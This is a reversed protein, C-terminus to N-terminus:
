SLLWKPQYKQQYWNVLKCATWGSAIGLILGALVDSPFHVYFYLRSFAIAVALSYAAMGARKHHLFLATAAAFSAFTHGSPFSFDKEPPILLTMDPFYSYPRARAVLPKLTVNGILLCFLLALIMTLGAKRYQPICLLLLALALWGMGANGFATIVPLITDFFDTHLKAITDLIFFEFEM